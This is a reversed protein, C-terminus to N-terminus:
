ADRVTAASLDALARNLEDNAEDERDGPTMKLAQLVERYPATLQAVAYYKRDSEADDLAVANARALSLLGEDLDVLRGQERGAEIAKELMAAHRGSPRAVEFLPAVNDPTKSSM